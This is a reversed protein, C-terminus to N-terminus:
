HEKFILLVTAEKLKKGGLEYGRCRIESGCLGLRLDGLSIM